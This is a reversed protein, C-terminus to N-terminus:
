AAASADPLKTERPRSEVRALMREAIYDEVFSQLAFDRIFGCHGGHAAIDLETGPPLKL